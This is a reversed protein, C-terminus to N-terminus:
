NFQFNLFSSMTLAKFNYSLTELNPGIKENILKLTELNKSAETLTYFTKKYRSFKNIFRAPRCSAESVNPIGYKLDHNIFYSVYLM